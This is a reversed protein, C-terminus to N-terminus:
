VVTKDDETKKQKRVQVVELLMGASVTGLGALLFPVLIQLVMSCVTEAPASSGGADKARMSRRSRSTGYLKVPLLFDSEQPEYHISTNVASINGNSSHSPNSSYQQSTGRGVSVSPPLQEDQSEQVVMNYLQKQCSTKGAARAGSYSHCHDCATPRFLFHASFFTRQFADQPQYHSVSYCFFLLWLFSPHVVTYCCGYSCFYLWSSLMYNYLRRNKYQSYKNVLTKYKQM